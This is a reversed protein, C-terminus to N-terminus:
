KKSSNYVKQSYLTIGLKAQKTKLRRLKDRAEKTQSHHAVGIKELNTEKIQIKRDPSLAYNEVGYLELLTQTSKEKTSPDQQTFEVGYKFLNTEKMNAILQCGCSRTKQKILNWKNILKQTQTSCGTCICLINQSTTTQDDLLLWHGVKTNKKLPLILIDM